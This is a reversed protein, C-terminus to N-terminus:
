DFALGFYSPPPLTNNGLPYYMAFPIETGPARFFGEQCGLTHVIAPALSADGLLEVGYLKDSERRAALLFGPGAYFSAQTKLFDLNEHEQLVGGVPLFERRLTSYQAHNIQELSINDQTGMCSFEHMYSCIQYGMADYFRFLDESGPVLIVGEYGQNQLIRLTDHMLKRCFGKGRQSEATAVAYLYAIPRNCHLCDFWYLAAVVSGDMSVCRCRHSSFATAFFTDLFADSDGFAEKWIARLAPLQEEKPFDINM